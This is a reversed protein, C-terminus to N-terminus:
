CDGQYTSKNRSPQSPLSNFTQQLFDLFYPSIVVDPLSQISFWACVSPRREELGPKRQVSCTSSPSFSVPAEKSSTNTTHDYYINRNESNYHAKVEVGPVFFTTEKTDSSKDYYRQSDRNIFVLMFLFFYYILENLTISGRNVLQHAM